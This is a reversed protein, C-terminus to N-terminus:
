LIHKDLLDDLFAVCGEHIDQYADEFRDDWWPDAINRSKGTYELLKHIKHDPDKHVIQNMYFINEQDMGILYDFVEYDKKTMQRARRYEYPIHKEDLKQKALYYLDSGIDERSTAASEIVFADSLGRKSVLDKMMFEAMPSRCINGHCVFLVKIVKKM